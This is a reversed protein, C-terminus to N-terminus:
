EYQGQMMKQYEPSGQFKRRLLSAYRAEGERDGIKREVRLALWTSQPNPEMLKHLDALSLRAEYYRGKRYYIDALWYLAEVNGADVRRAKLLFDEALADDHMKLYCIGLATMAKAPTTYLPNKIAAMFHGVSQQPRDTQCLFWGYNNNIEPDNPALKLARQFDEDAAGNEKLNMHVLGLLNYAPAYAPDAGVAIRAEDQAVGFRGNELYLAGLETHVKARQQVDSTTAQQSVAQEATGQQVVPAGACGALVLALGLAMPKM